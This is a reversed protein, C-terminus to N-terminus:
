GKVEKHIEVSGLGRTGDRRENGGPETPIAREVDPRPKEMQSISRSRRLM